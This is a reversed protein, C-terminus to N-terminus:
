EGGSTALLLLGVLACIAGGGVMIQQPGNEAKANGRVTLNDWDFSTSISVRDTNKEQMGMVVAAIGGVIAALGIVASTSSAEIKPQTTILLGSLISM